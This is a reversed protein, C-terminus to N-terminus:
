LIQRTKKKKFTNPAWGTLVVVDRKVPAVTNPTDKEKFTNAAWGARVVVCYLVADKPFLSSFPKGDVRLYNTSTLM